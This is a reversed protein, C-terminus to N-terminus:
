RVYYLITMPHSQGDEDVVGYPLDGLLKAGCKIAFKVAATNWQPVHGILMDLNFFGLSKGILAKGIEISLGDWTEAFFCFHAQATNQEFHNLWGFALPAEGEYAVLLVNQPSKMYALFDKSTKISGDYFVLKRTGDREMLHFLTEIQSDRMTPIGDFQVYARVTIM